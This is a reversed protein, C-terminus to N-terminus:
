FNLTILDARSIGHVTRRILSYSHVSSRRDSKFRRLRLSKSSTVDVVLLVLVLHTAVLSLLNTGSRVINWTKRSTTLANLTKRSLHLSLIM